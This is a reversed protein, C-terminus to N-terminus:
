KAAANLVRQLMMHKEKSLPRCEVVEVLDGVSAVSQEDHVKYKKFTRVVKGFVKHKFRREIKVVITKEMAASLVIGSLVRRATREKKNEQTGVQRVGSM